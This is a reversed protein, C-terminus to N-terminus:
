VQKKENNNSLISSGNGATRQRKSMSGADSHWGSRIIDGEKTSIPPEDVIAQDLESVLETLPDLQDRLEILRQSQIEPLLEILNPLRTLASILARLDRANVSRLAIRSALRELDYLGHLQERMSQRMIYQELCEAVAEQRLLIHQRRLLPQVLWTRLLRSGMSTKTEDIAWLVSGKRRRDRLTETLELNRLATLDLTMYDQRKFPKIAQVHEPLLLQTETLYALLGASARVWFADQSVDDAFRSINSENLRFAAEDLFSVAFTFQEQLRRLLEHDDAEQPLVIEAPSLRAIEDCVQEALNLGSFETTEFRGSTLDM